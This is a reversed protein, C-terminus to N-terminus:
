GGKIEKYLYYGAVAGIILGVYRMAMQSYANVILGPVDALIVFYIAMMGSAYPLSKTKINVVIFLVFGIMWFLMGFPFYFNFLTVFFNWIDFSTLYGFLINIDTPM